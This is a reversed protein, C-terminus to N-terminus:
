RRVIGGIPRRAAAGQGSLPGRSTWVDGQRHWTHETVDTGLDIVLGGGDFVAPQEPTGGTSLRLPESSVKAEGAHVVGGALIAAHFALGAILVSSPQM